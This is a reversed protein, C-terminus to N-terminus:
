FKIKRWKKPYKKTSLYNVFLFYLIHVKFPLQTFRKIERSNLIDGRVVVLNDM